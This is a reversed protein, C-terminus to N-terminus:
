IHKRTTEPCGPLRCRPSFKEFSFSEPSFSGLRPRLRSSKCDEVEGWREIQSNVEVHTAQAAQEVSIRRKIFALSILLSKTTYVARELGQFFVDPSTGRYPLTYRLYTGALQWQDLETLIRRLADKSAQPQAGIMVSDFTQVEVKLEENAWQIIPSWHEKQLRM